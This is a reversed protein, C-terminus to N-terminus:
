RRTVTVTFSARATNASTDTASCRVVTRRGVVFRSGSRPQCAVPVARDVNDTAALKYRVSVRAAKRPARVVKGAAGTITPPTLDFELNPVVLTGEWIDTGAGHGASTRRTNTRRVVGSGSAGAYVGSGGTITFAQAPGLVTDTPLGQLCGEAAAVALSIEGKGEVLLRAPYRLVHFGGLCTAGPETEVPYSYAQSVVGLGPVAVPGGPRSYCGVTAPYSGVCASPAGQWALEVRLPWTGAARGSALPVLTVAAVLAASIAVRCARGRCPRGASLASSRRVTGTVLDGETAAALLVM